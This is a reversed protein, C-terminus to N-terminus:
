EDIDTFDTPIEIDAVGMEVYYIMESGTGISFAMRITKVSGGAFTVQLDKVAPLYDSQMAECFYTGDAYDFSAYKGIFEALIRDTENVYNDFEDYFEADALGERTWQTGDPSFYHYYNEGEKTLLNCETKDFDVPETVYVQEKEIDAIQMASFPMGQIQQTATITYAKFPATFAADWESETVEASAASVTVTCNASKGGATATVTASGVAVAKVTGGSVTAIKEDSSTWAVTKDTANDPAVTATLTEEGGVELALTNKNLTVSEVAVTQSEGGNGGDGGNNGTNGSQGGNDCAAFLATGLFVAAVLAAFRKVKTNM